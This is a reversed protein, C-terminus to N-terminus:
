EIEIKKSLIKKKYYTILPILFRRPMLLTVLGFFWFRLNILNKRRYKILIFIERLLIRMSGFNKLQILGEYHRCMFDIGMQQIIQFENECYVIKFMKVWSETPSLLYIKSNHRTVSSEIRVAITYDKLFVVKYKKLISAFPYIHTPFIEEHFNTDIYKTRYALGSVQGVSEFIKEFVITGDFISLVTNNNKDFPKVDRVPTSVDDLFWYYPRTVVGIDDNIFADYTKKLSGPLLIDDQCLYFIIDADKAKEYCNQLNKGLGLNTPNKFFTIRNDRFKKIIQETNDTSGDDCIIVQYDQFDQSFLSELTEKIYTAGNYTPILVTLKLKTM